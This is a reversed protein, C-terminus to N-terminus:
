IISRRRLLEMLEKIKTEADRHDKSNLANVLCSQTHSEFIDMEVNRLAAIAARLQILIDVCYRRESIMKQVGNIQGMARNLRPLVESHDPHQHVGEECCNEAAKPSSAASKKTKPSKQNRTM